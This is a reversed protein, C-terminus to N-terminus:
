DVGAETVFSTNLLGRLDRTVVGADTTGGTLRYLKQGTTAYVSIRVDADRKELLQRTMSEEWLPIFRFVDAPDWFYRIAPNVDFLLVLELPMRGQTAASDFITFPRPKGDEFLTVDGAKLDPVFHKGQRVHFSVLVLRTQAIFSVASEQQAAASTALLLALFLRSIM